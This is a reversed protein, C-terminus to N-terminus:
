VDLKSGSQLRVFGITLGSLLWPGMWRRDELQPGILVGVGGGGGDGLMTGWSKRRMMMRSMTRRMMIIGSLSVIWDSPPGNEGDQTEAGCPRDDDDVHGVGGCQRSYYYSGM